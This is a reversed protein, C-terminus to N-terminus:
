GAALGARLGISKWGGLHIEPELGDNISAGQPHSLDVVLRWKGPQHNKSVLGFRNIQVEPYRGPEDGQGAQGGKGPVRRDGGTSAGGVAYQCFRWHLPMERVPVGCPIGTALRPNHLGQLRCRSPGEFVVGLSPMADSM